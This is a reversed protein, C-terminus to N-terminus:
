KCEGSLQAAAVRFAVYAHQDNDFAMRLEASSQWAANADRQVKVRDGDWRAGGAQQRTMVAAKALDAGTYRGDAKMAKILPGYGPGLDAAVAEIGKYRDREQAAGEERYMAALGPDRRALAEATERNQM